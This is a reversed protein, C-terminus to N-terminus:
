IGGLTIDPAPCTGPTLSRGAWRPPRRGAPSPTPLGPRAAVLAAPDPVGADALVQTASAAPLSNFWTRGLRARGVATPSGWLRIRAMGGDPYADLRVEDVAVGGALVFRHRTDPQLPTRPLM